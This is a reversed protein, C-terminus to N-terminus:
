RLSIIINYIVELRETHDKIKEFELYKNEFSVKNINDIDNILKNFEDNVQKKCDNILNDLKSRAINLIIKDNTNIRFKNNQINYLQKTIQYNIIINKNKCLYVKYKFNKSPNYKIFNIQNYIQEYYNNLESNCLLEIEKINSELIKLNINRYCDKSELNELANIIYEKKIKVKYKLQFKIENYISIDKYLERKYEDIKNIIDECILSLNKKKSNIHKLEAKKKFNENISERLQSINSKNILDIDNKCKGDVANKASLFIIDDFYSSYIEKVKEKVKHIYIENNNLIDMKNVVLIMNKRNDSIKNLKSINSILDNSNKSVINQADIIWIIGDAKIYYNEVSNLVSKKLIQNIGPTDVIIFDDLIGSHNIYYKVEIIKSIYLYKEELDKKIIKLEETSYVKSNKYEDITKFIKKRSDKFKKEEELLQELGIQLPLLEKKNNEYILEINENNSKYFLDLKWTNPLDKTKIISQELLSNILTSKGYNGCGVVFIFFPNLLEKINKLAYELLKRVEYLLLNIRNNDIQKKNKMNDVLDILNNLISTLRYFEKKRIDLSM